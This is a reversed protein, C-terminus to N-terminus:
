LAKSKTSLTAGNKVSKALFFAFEPAAVFPGFPMSSTHSYYIELDKKYKKLFEDRLQRDHFELSLSKDLDEANSEIWSKVFGNHCQVSNRMKQTVILAPISSVIYVMSVGAATRAAVRGFFGAQIQAGLTVITCFLLIKKM